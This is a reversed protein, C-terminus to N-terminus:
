IDVVFLNANSYLTPNTCRNHKHGLQWCNSCRPASRQRRESAENQNTALSPNSAEDLEQALERGESVTLIGENQLARTRRTRRKQLTDVAEQLRHNERALLAANHMTVLSGKILQNFAHSSLPDLESNPMNLLSRVSKAQQELTRANYPTKPSWNASSSTSPRSPAPTAEHTIIQLRSLVKEPDYPM